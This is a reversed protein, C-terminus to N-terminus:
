HKPTKHGLHLYIEDKVCGKIGNSLMGLMMSVSLPSLVVNQDKNDQGIVTKVASATLKTSFDKIDNAVKTSRVNLEISIRDGAVPSKQEDLSTEPSCSFLMGMLVLIICINSKNGM